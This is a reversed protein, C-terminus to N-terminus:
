PKGQVIRRRVSVVTGSAADGGEEYLFAYLYSYIGQSDVASSRVSHALVPTVRRPGIDVSFSGDLEFIVGLRVFFLIEEFNM